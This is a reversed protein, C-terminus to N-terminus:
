IKRIGFSQRLICLRLYKPLLGKANIKRLHFQCYQCISQVKKSKSM